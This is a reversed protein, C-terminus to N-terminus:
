SFAKEAIEKVNKGKVTSPISIEGLYGNPEEIVIYCNKFQSLYFRVGDFTEVDQANAMLALLSAILLLVKNKM